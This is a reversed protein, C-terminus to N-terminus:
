PTAPALQYIRPPPDLNLKALIGRQAKTLETRQRFSGAPGTFTGVAIRQLDRRLTPWTTQCTTEIIRVLLLALWCLM